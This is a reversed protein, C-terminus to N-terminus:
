RSKHVTFSYLNRTHVWVRYGHVPASMQINKPEQYASTSPYWASNWIPIQNGTPRTLPEVNTAHPFTQLSILPLFLIITDHISNSNHFFFSQHFPSKLQVCQLTTGNYRPWNEGLDECYVGMVLYPTYTTPEFYTELEAGTIATGYIIGHRVSM